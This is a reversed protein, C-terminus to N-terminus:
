NSFQEFSYSSITSLTSEFYGLPFRQSALFAPPFERGVKAGSGEDVVKIVDFVKKEGERNRWGKMRGRNKREVEKECEM